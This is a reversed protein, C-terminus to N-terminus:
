RVKPTTVHVPESACPGRDYSTGIERKPCPTARVAFFFMVKNSGSTWDSLKLAFVSSLGERKDVWTLLDTDGNCDM